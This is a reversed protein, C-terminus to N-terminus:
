FVERLTEAVPRRAAGWAPAIGAILGVVVSLAIGEAVLGPTVLFGTLPGLENSGMSGGAFVRIMASFGFTMLAGTGGALTALVTSEAVLTGFIVGRGFGIARLVAIERSRERVAMSATNAAICLVCLAVLGTVVLIIQVFSQLSGFFSSFFSKETEASVEAPSNRFMEVARAMVSPVLAPDAVRLWVTGVTDLTRDQAEMAQALYERQIWFHPARDNPIEGVIRFTLTVPWVTSVLSVQQGIRWRYKKMTERGVIAADRQRRFKELALPEVEYDPWVAAIANPDLAFSPFTVIGEDEYAGGFWVEGNVASVGPIGRLRQVYAYPM